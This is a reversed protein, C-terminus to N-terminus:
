RQWGFSFILKLVAISQAGHSTFVEHLAPQITLYKYTYSYTLEMATENGEDHLSRNVLVGVYDEKDSLGRWILGAGAYFKCTGRPAYGGQLLLELRNGGPTIYIPQEALGWFSFRNRRSDSDELRVNGYVMGAHYNGVYDDDDGAYSLETINMVGDRHPRFRFRTDWADGAVGNYLSNKITFGFRTAWEIHLCLASLPSDSLPYNHSIIPLLGNTSATFLSNWPSTFYDINVNRVGLFLNVDGISQTLGFMFLSLDVDGDEIASFIHLDDAVGGLGHTNRLNNVSLLNLSITANRWLRQDIGVDLINIWNGRNYTANYLGETTFEINLQTAPEKAEGFAVIGFLLAASTFIIHRM